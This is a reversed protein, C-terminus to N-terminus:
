LKIPKIFGLPIWSNQKKDFSIIRTKNAVQDGERSGKANTNGEITDIVIGDNSNIVIAAHGSTTPNGNKYVQYILVSGDVAIKSCEFESKEFNHYTQVANASFLKDLKDVMTTDIKAYALKWVLESFYACWAHTTEWGVTKMLDEFSMNLEDFFVDQWGQNNGHEKIGNFLNAYYKIHKVIM